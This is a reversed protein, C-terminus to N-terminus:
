FASAIAAIVAAAAAVVLAVRPWPLGTPPVVVPQPAVIRTVGKSPSEGAKVRVLLQDIEGEEFPKVLRLLVGSAPAGSPLTLRFRRAEEDRPARLAGSRDCGDCGGGDCRACALLKAPLVELQAGETLWGAPVVLAVSARTGESEDLAQKDVVRGLSTVTM